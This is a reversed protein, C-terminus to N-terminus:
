LGLTGAGVLCLCLVKCGFSQVNKYLVLLKWIGRNRILYPDGSSVNLENFFQGLFTYAAMHDSVRRVTNM